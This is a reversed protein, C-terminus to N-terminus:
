GRGIRIIDAFVGGATVEPGAGAGKIVLPNDGYRETYIAIVNDTGSMNYFPHSTDVEILEVAVNGKEIKGVYRLKKNNASANNRKKELTDSNHELKVLFEEPSLSSCFAEPSLLPDVKIDRLELQYGLERSLILLKRAVDLGNLDDRPDPETIGLSHAKKVIESFSNQASYHNFIYSLTGSLIAEIKVIHDGSLVLDSLTSIVPLGAGVNAEYFYKVGNKESLKKLSQYRNYSGSNAKKNPTVVSIGKLLIEEYMGAIKEDATCDIFIAKGFENKEMEHIFTQLNSVSSSSHLEKEWNALDIGDSNILMHKSDAIGSLIIKLGQSKELDSKKKEIQNLLAHGIGGTGIMYLYLNKTEPQFFEEHIINLAKKEDESRILCTINLESSGQAVAVINIGKKGLASFFKGAVGPHQHMGEGVIAIVSLNETIVVPDVFGAGRELAFERDVLNKAREAYNPMVAFCISHESSSQTILIVNISEKALAGFLRSATGCVGIMGAGELRLLVVKDISSIGTILNKTQPHDFNKVETGRAEPNFTNKIVLPIKKRMAPAITPPHIVKAGFHSMEMLERYSMEPISTAKSVKRPDTTLVGDVDTWIEIKEVDLAAGFIAATFDSGGRGLTTTEGGVTSAIFGPIVPVVNKEAFYERIKRYSIDEELVAKGFSCNTVLLKRADLYEAHPIKKKLALGIINASFQEGYSMILDLSRDSLERILFIGHLLDHLEEFLNKLILDIEQVDHDSFLAATVKSHRVSLEKLESLYLDSGSCAITGMNILKDTVGQLASVVVLVKPDKKFTQYVLDLVVQIREADKVSSGGFKLVKM